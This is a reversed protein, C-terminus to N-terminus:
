LIYKLTKKIRKPTLTLSTLPLIATLILVATLALITALTLVSTLALIATLTLITALTLVAALALIATLILIATLALIATLTLIAATTSVHQPHCGVHNSSHETPSHHATDIMESMLEFLTMDWFDENRVLSINVKICWILYM